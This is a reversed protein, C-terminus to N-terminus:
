LSKTFSSYLAKITKTAASNRADKDMHSSFNVAKYASLSRKRITGNKLTIIVEADIFGLVFPKTKDYQMEFKKGHMSEAIVVGLPGLQSSGEKLLQAQHNSEFKLRKLKLKIESPQNKWQSTTHNIHKKLLELTTPVFMEDGLTWIGYDDNFVMISGITFEKDTQPRYDEIIITAYNGISGISIDDKVVIKPQACGYLNLTGLFILILSLSKLQM